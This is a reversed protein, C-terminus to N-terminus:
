SVKGHYAGTTLAEVTFGTMESVAIAKKGQPICNRTVWHSIANPTVSISYREKLLKAMAKAGGVQFLATEVPTRVNIIKDM